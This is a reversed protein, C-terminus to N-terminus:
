RSWRWRGSRRRRPRRWGAGRPAPRATPGLQAPPPPDPWALQPQCRRSPAANRAAPLPTRQRGGLRSGHRRLHQLQAALARQQHKLVRVHVLRHLPGHKAAEPGHALHAPAPGLAQPCWDRAQARMCATLARHPDSQGAWVWGVGGASGTGLAGGTCIQEAVERRSTCRSMAGAKKAWSLRRASPMLTPARQHPLQAQANCAHAHARGGAQRRGAQRGAQGRGAKCVYVLRCRARGGARGGAEVGRCIPSGSDGSQRRPASTDSPCYM